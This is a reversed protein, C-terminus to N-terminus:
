GNRLRSRGCMQCHIIAGSQCLGIKSIPSIAREPRSHKATKMRCNRKRTTPIQQLEDDSLHVESILGALPAIQAAFRINSAVGRLFQAKPQGYALTKLRRDEMLLAATRYYSSVDIVTADKCYSRVEDMNLQEFLHRALQPMSPLARLIVGTQIDLSDLKLLAFTNEIQHSVSDPHHAADVLPFAYHADGASQFVDELLVKRRKLSLSSPSADFVTFTLDAEYEVPLASIRDLLLDLNKDSSQRPVTSVSPAVQGMMTGVALLMFFYVFVRM